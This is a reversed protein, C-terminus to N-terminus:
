DRELVYANLQYWIEVDRQNQKPRKLPFLGGRGNFNYTRWIVRDLKDEVLSRPVDESDNYKSLGLNEIMEWFWEYPEANTLFALRRSIGVLLEFMSCDLALWDRDVDNPDLKNDALCEFRLDKGDEIRNDDNPVIWVFEKEYFIKLLKWYTRKPNKIRVSAVQRYLWEFYLEDLYASIATM